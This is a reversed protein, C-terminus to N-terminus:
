LHLVAKARHIKKTTQNYNIVIDRLTQKSPTPHAVVDVRCVTKPGEQM